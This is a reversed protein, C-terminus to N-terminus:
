IDKSSRSTTLWSDFDLRRIDRKIVPLGTREACLKVLAAQGELDRSLDLLYHGTEDLLRVYHSPVEVPGDQIRPHSIGIPDFNSSTRHVTTVTRDEIRKIVNWPIEQWGMVSCHRLGSIAPWVRYSQVHAAYVLLALTFLLGGATTAVAIPAVSGELRLQLVLTATPVIGLVSWAVVIWKTRSRWHAEVAGPEPHWPAESSWNWHGAFTKATVLYVAAALLALAVIGLGLASLIRSAAGPTDPAVPLAGHLDPDGLRPPLHGTPDIYLDVPQNLGPDSGDAHAVTIVVREGGPASAKATEILYDYNSTYGVSTGPVHLYPSQAHAKHEADAISWGIVVATVVCGGALVARLTQPKM